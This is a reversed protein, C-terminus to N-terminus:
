RDAEGLHGSAAARRGLLQLEEPTVTLDTKRFCVRPLIRLRTTEEASRQQAALVMRAIPNEGGAITLRRLVRPLKRKRVRHRRWSM